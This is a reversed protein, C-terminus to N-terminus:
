GSEGVVNTSFATKEGDSIKAGKDFISSHLQTTRYEIGSTKM